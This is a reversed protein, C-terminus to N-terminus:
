AALDDALAKQEAGMDSLFGVLDGLGVGECDVVTNLVQRVTLAEYGKKENGKLAAKIAKTIDGAYDKAKVEVNDDVWTWITNAEDKELWKVAAAVKADHRTQKKIREGFLGTKDDFQYPIFHEFYLQAAQKNMPTLVGLLRNLTAVDPSGEVVIYTLVSRSLEALRLKTITEAAALAEIASDISVKLQEINM